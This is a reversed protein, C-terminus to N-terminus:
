STLDGAAEAERRAEFAEMQSAPADDSTGLAAMLSEDAPVRTAEADHESGIGPMAAQM